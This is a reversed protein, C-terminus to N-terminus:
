DFLGIEVPRGASWVRGGCVGEFLSRAPDVSAECEKTVTCRSCYGLAEEVAEGGLADFLHAPAGICAANRLSM